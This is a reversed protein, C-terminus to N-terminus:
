SRREKGRMPVRAGSAESAYVRRGSENCPRTRSSSHFRPRFEAPRATRNRESEGRRAASHCERLLNLMFWMVAVPM